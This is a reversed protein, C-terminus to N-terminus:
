LQFLQQHVASPCLGALVGPLLPSQLAASCVAVAELASHKWLCNTRMKMGLNDGFGNTAILM